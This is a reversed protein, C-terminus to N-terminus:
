RVPSVECTLSCFRSNGVDSSGWHLKTLVLRSIRTEALPPTSTLEQSSAELATSLSLSAAISWPLSHFSAPRMQCYAPRGAEGDPLRRAQRIFGM